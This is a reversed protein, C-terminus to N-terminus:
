LKTKIGDLYSSATNLFEDKIADLSGERTFAAARPHGGGGFHGALDAVDVSDNSRLSFRYDGKEGERILGAVEVGAIYRPFDVFGDIDFDDAGCVSRMEKTITMLGIKGGCYVEITKLAAALLKIKGLSYREMIKRSIRWPRVGWGFLEGAIEFAARTTNNYRFSGTDTEIAVFINEAIEENMPLDAVQMLRYIIEGTSSSGADVINLDGFMTNNAHHDINILCGKGALELTIRGLREFAACDLIICADFRAGHDIGDVVREIGTMHELTDTIPGENFLVVRKGSLRLGEGLALLSGIADGDPDKHSGLFFFQEKKLINVVAPLDGPRVKGWPDGNYQRKDARM